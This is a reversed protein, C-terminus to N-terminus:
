YNLQYVYALEDCMELKPCDLCDILIKRYFLNKDVLMFGLKEFFNGQYTLAIIKAVRLKYAKNICEDVLMKGIGKGVYEKSVALSRIEAIDKWLVVVSSCGIIKNNEEIVVFSEVASYIRYLTKPLMVGKSSYFNILELIQEVDDVTANRLKM